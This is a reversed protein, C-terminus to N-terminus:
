VFDLENLSLITTHSEMDICNTFGQKLALTLPPLFLPPPPTRWQIPRDDTGLGFGLAVCDRRSLAFSFHRSSLLVGHVGTYFLSEGDNSNILPFFHSLLNLTQKSPKHICAFHSSCCFSSSSPSIYNSFMSQSYSSTLSSPTNERKKNKIYPPVTTTIERGGKYGPPPNKLYDSQM